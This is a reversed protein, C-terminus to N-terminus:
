DDQLPKVDRLLCPQSCNFHKQTTSFKLQKLRFYCFRVRSCIMVKIYRSNNSSFMAGTPWFIRSIVGNLTPRRWCQYRFIHLSPFMFIVDNLILDCEHFGFCSQQQYISFCETMLWCSGKGADLISSHCAYKWVSVITAIKSASLWLGECNFFTNEAALKSSKSPVGSLRSKTLKLLPSM